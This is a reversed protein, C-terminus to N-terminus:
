ECVITLLSIIWHVADTSVNLQCGICPRIWPPTPPTRVGRIKPPFVNERRRRERDTLKLMCSRWDFIDSGPWSGRQEYFFDQYSLRICKRPLISLQWRGRLMNFNPTENNKRCPNWNIKRLYGRGREKSFGPDPGATNGQMSSCLWTFPTGTHTHIYTYLNM